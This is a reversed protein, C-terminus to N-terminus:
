RLDLASVDIKVIESDSPFIRCEFLTGFVLQTMRHSSPEPAPSVTPTIVAFRHKLHARKAWVSKAGLGGGVDVWDGKPGSTTPRLNACRCAYGGAVISPRPRRKSREIRQEGRAKIKTLTADTQEAWQIEELNTRMYTQLQRSREAHNRVVMSEPPGAQLVAERREGDM